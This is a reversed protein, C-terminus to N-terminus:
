SERGIIKGLLTADLEAALALTSLALSTSDQIGGDTRIAYWQSNTRLLVGEADYYDVNLRVMHSEGPKGTAPITHKVTLTYRITGDDLYYVAGYSDQNVKKLTKTVANYTIDWTDGIM